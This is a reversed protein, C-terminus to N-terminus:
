KGETTCPAFARQIILAKKRQMLRACSTQCLLDPVLPRTCSTQRLLVARALREVHENALSSAAAEGLVEVALKGCQVGDAAVVDMGLFNGTVGGVVADVM